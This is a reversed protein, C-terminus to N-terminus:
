EKVRLRRKRKKDIVFEEIKRNIGITEIDEIQDITGETITEEGILNVEKM